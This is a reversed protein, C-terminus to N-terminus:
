GCGAPVAASDAKTTLQVLTVFSRQFEVVQVASTALAVCTISVAKARIDAEPRALGGATGLLGVTDRVANSM